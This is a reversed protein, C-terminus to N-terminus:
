SFAEILEAISCLTQMVDNAHRLPQRFVIRRYDKQLVANSEDNVRTM